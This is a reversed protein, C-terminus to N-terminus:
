WDEKHWPPVVGSVIQRSKVLARRTEEYIPMVSVRVTTQDAVVSAFVAGALLSLRTDDARYDHEPTPDLVVLSSIAPLPRHDVVQVPVVDVSPNNM